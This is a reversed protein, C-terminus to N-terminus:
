LKLWREIVTKNGPSKENTEAKWSRDICKPRRFLNQIIFTEMEM